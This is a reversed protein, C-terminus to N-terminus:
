CIYHDRLNLCCRLTTDLNLPGNYGAVADFFQCTAVVGDKSSPNLVVTFEPIALESVMQPSENLRPEDLPDAVLVPDGVAFSFM